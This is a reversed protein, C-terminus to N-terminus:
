QYRFVVKGSPDYLVGPDPKSNNWINATTWLLDGTMDGSSVTMSSGSKLLFDPFTFSQNGTESVLVYGRLNVDQQSKNRITVVEARKDIKEIIIGNTLPVDNGSAIPPTSTSPSPTPMTESPSAVPSPSVVPSPSATPSPSVPTGPVSSAPAPNDTANGAKVRLFQEAISTDVVGTRVLEELLSFESNKTKTELALCSVMAVHDRLFAGSSLSSADNLTIMKIQTAFDIAKDYSFDGASDNFHLSRLMLTLYSKANLTDGSGFLGGGVGKTMGNQYAFNVYGVAWSPVDTFVCPLDSMEKAESEKGLMRIMMILGELRNPERELEFGGGTGQFVGLQKLNEAETQYQPSYAAVMSGNSFFFIVIILSIAFLRKKMIFGGGAHVM